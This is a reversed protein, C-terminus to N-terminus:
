NRGEPTDRLEPTPEETSRRFDARTRLDVDM